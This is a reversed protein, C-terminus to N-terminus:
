GAILMVCGGFICSILFTLSANFLRFKSCTLGKKHKNESEVFGGM